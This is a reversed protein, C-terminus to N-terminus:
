PRTVIVVSEWELSCIVDAPNHRDIDFSNIACPEALLEVPEEGQEVVALIGDESCMMAPLIRSSSINGINSPKTYRDYQVEWVESESVSHTAVEGTRAGSLIIPQQQWRLDWAFLTGSSGGALCTHKRSPHIDISHVIGSTKGRNWNGKFQSVAAGPKRLDWFKLNFGFGGTFFETPSAWKVASFGVLGNGDFVRRHSLRSSDGVVRVLNVRGDEGVSVCESGDDVLDVGSVCGVHFGVEGISGQPELGSGDYGLIHLSGSFTSAALLSSNSTRLSSIRSPPTWRSQSTLSNQPTLSHVELSSTATDADYLALAATKDFASLPPLWRVADLYSSQQLRHIQPTPPETIAM